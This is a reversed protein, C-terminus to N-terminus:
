HVPTDVDGKPLHRDRDFPLDQHPPMELDPFRELWDQRWEEDAYYMLFLRTDEESWGGLLNVSWAGEDDDLLPVEERLVDHWLAAYLERDSLHDTQSLFVGLDALAAIVAWLTDHVRAEDLSDPEPLDVGAEILQDFNTTLPKTEFDVVRRWFRERLEPSMAASEYDRMEGNSLQKARQKLAKARASARDRRKSAMVVIIIFLPAPRL